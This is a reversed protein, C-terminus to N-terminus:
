IQPRRREIANVIIPGIVGVCLAIISLTMILTIDLEGYPPVLLIKDVTSGGYYVHLTSVPNGDYWDKRGFKYAGVSIYSIRLKSPYDQDDLQRSSHNQGDLETAVFGDTSMFSLNEPSIDENESAVRLRVEVYDGFDAAIAGRYWNTDTGNVVRAELDYDIGDTPYANELGARTKHIQEVMSHAKQSNKVGSVTASLALLLMILGAVRMAWKATTFWQLKNREGM